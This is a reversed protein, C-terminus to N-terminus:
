ATKRRTKTRKAVSTSLWTRRTPIGIRHRSRAVHYTSIRLRQATEEDSFNLTWYRFVEVDFDTLSAPSSVKRLAEEILDPVDIGSQAAHANLARWTADSLKMELIM